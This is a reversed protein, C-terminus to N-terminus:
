ISGMAKQVKILDKLYEPSNREIRKQVVPATAAYMPNDSNFRVYYYFETGHECIYKDYYLYQGAVLFFQKMSLRGDTPYVNHKYIRFLTTAKVLQIGDLGQVKDYERHSHAVKHCRHDLFATFFEQTTM